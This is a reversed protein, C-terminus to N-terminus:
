SSYEVLKAITKETLIRGAIDQQAEHKDLEAQMAPDQYQNKLIKLRVELEEPTVKLGEIEAIESLVLGAKLREEAEPRHRQRHQEDTIGEQKLHEQWTQGRYALNRKEDEELSIIQEDIMTKPIDVASKATITQILQNEYARDASSQRETQLQKKIDDKLEAMTKFPGAKTAFSDDLKPVKLESVKKVDVKFTVKKNQLARVGYDTPFPITFEKSEGTRAGVLHQEFGPIFTSSGLLLPYDKGDAGSVPQSKDDRGAFDILVEDADKAGREVGIREALRKRLSGLVEKVDEATIDVKPKALKIKKYDPLGAISTIETEIEFELVSYPVFKKLETKPQGFPRLNEAALARRYFDSIAHELFENHLAQQDVRKEIMNSPAKGPRFGPIKTSKAFHGLVHRKVPALEAEAVSITLKIKTPSLVTKSIQM